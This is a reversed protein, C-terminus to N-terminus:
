QSGAKSLDKVQIIIPFNKFYQLANIESNPVIKEQYYLEMSNIPIQFVKSSVEYIFSLLSFKSIQFNYGTQQHVLSVDM